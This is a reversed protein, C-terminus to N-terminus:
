GNRSVINARSDRILVFDYPSDGLPQRFDWGAALHSRESQRLGERETHEFGAVINGRGGAFNGGTVATFRDEQLSNGEDAWGHSATLDLGEFNEKMIVNVTGAIADTGYIPAGGVAIIEIRDVMAVPIMNFDVQLGPEANSFLTPSNGSVFRRGNVLVLTRQSGLGFFNVFEAGINTLGQGGETSNGPAGFAPLENIIDALNYSGRDELFDSEIVTTAQMTDFGSRYIRSGTVLVLELTLAEDDAPSDLAGAPDQAMACPLLMAGAVGLYCTVNRM